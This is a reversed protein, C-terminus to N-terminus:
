GNAVSNVVQEATFSHDELLKDVEIIIQPNSLQFDNELFDVM